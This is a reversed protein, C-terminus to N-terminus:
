WAVAMRAPRPRTVPRRRPVPRWLGGFSADAVVAVAGVVLWPGLAILLLTLISM